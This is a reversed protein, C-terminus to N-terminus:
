DQQWENDDSPPYTGSKSIIRIKKQHTNWYQGIVNIGTFIVIREEPPDYNFDYTQKKVPQGGLVLSIELNTGDEGFVFIGTRVEDVQEDNPVTPSRFVLNLTREGRDTWDYDNMDVEDAGSGESIALLANAAGVVYFNNSFVSWLPGPYFAM